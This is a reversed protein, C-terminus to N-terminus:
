ILGEGMRIMDYVSEVVLRQDIIADDGDIGKKRSYDVVSYTTKSTSSVSEDGLIDKESRKLIDYYENINNYMVILKKNHICHYINMIFDDSIDDRKINLILFSYEGNSDSLTSIDDIHTVDIKESYDFTDGYEFIEYSYKNIFDMQMEYTDKRKRCGTVSLTLILLVVILFIKKM